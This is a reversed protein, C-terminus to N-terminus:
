FGTLKKVAKTLEKETNESVFKNIQMAADIIQEMTPFQPAAESLEKATKDMLDWAAMSAHYNNELLEKAKTFTAFRLEFPNM